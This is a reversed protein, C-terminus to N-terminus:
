KSDAPSKNVEMPLAMATLKDIAYQQKRLIRFIGILGIVLLCVGYSTLRTTEEPPATNAIRTMFLPGFTLCSPIVIWFFKDLLKDLM